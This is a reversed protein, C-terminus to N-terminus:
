FLLTVAHSECGNVYVVHANPFMSHLLKKVALVLHYRSSTYPLRSM